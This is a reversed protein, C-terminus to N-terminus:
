FGDHEVLGVFHEIQTKALIHFEDELGRRLCPARQQERRRQRADNDRQRFLILLFRETDLDTAVFATVGVDIVAGDPDRGAVDVM